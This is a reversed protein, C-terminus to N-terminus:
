YIIVGKKKTHPTLLRTSEPVNLWHFLVQNFHYVSLFSPFVYLRKLDQLPTLKSRM